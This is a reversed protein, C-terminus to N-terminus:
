GNQDGLIQNARDIYGNVKVSCDSLYGKIEEPTLGLAGMWGNTICEEITAETQGKCRKAIDSYSIEGRQLGMEVSMTKNVPDIEIHVLQIKKM